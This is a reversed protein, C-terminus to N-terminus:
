GHTDGIKKQRASLLISTIPTIFVVLFLISWAIIGNLSTPQAEGFTEFYWQRELQTLSIGLSESPGNECSYGEKYADLLSQLGNAGYEQYIYRVFSDSQAYAMNIDSANPPFSECLSAFSFLAHNEYGATIIIKYDSNPFSEALTAIGENLWVPIDHYGNELYQNLRVHTIEHPIQREIDLLQLAGPTISVL